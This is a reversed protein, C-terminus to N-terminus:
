AKEGHYALHIAERVKLGCRVKEGYVEVEGSMDGEEFM